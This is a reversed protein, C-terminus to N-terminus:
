PLPFNPQVSETDFRVGDSRHESGCISDRRVIPSHDLGHLVANM